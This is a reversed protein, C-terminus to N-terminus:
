INAALSMVVAIDLMALSISSNISPECNMHICTTKNRAKNTKPIM